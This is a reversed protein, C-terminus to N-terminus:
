RRVPDRRTYWWAWLAAIACGSASVWAMALSADPSLERPLQPVDRLLFAAIVALSACGALDLLYLVRTRRTHVPELAARCVKERFHPSPVPPRVAIVLSADLREHLEAYTRCAACSALHRELAPREEPALRGDIRDLIKEEFEECGM